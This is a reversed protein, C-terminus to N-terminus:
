EVTSNYVRAIINRREKRWKSYAGKCIDCKCYRYSSLSGHVNQGKVLNRGTEKITKVIHCRDCLLQCKDIEKLFDQENISSFKAISFKKQTPDIHDVQLNNTSKCKVCFGGLRNLIYERRKHYRDLMYAKMYTNYNSKKKLPM